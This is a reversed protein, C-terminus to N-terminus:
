GGLARILKDAGKRAGGGWIDDGFGQIDIRSTGDDVAHVSVRLRVAQLGYRTRGMVTRTLPSAELVSGISSFARKVDEFAVDAPRQYHISRSSEGVM